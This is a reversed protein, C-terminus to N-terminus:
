LHIEWSEWSSKHIQSEWWKEDLFSMSSASLKLQGKLPPYFQVEKYLRISNYRLGINYSIVYIIVPVSVSHWDSAPGVFVDM